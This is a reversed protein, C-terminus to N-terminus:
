ATFINNLKISRHKNLSRKIYGKKELSLLKDVASKYCSINCGDQIERIYPAVSNEEIYRKIYQYVEQQGKTLAHREM